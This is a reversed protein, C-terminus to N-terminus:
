AEATIELAERRGIEAISVIDWIDGDFNIRDTIAVDSRFHTIFRAVRTGVTQRASAYVETGRIPIVTAWLEVFTAWVEVPAGLADVTAGTNREVAILRDMAGIRFRM